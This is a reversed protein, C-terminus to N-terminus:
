SARAKAREKRRRRQGQIRERQKKEREEIFGPMSKTVLSRVIQTPQAGSEIWKTVKDEKLNIQPPDMLPNYTGVIELFRGDRFTGHPAAVIRYFPRKKSGYRALRITVPM